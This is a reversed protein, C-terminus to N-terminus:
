MVGVEVNWAIKTVRPVYFLNILDLHEQHSVGKLGSNRVASSSFGQM